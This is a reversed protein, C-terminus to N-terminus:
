LGLRKLLGRALKASVTKQTSLARSKAYWDVQGCGCSTVRGERLYSNRVKKVKGCTCRCLSMTMRGPITVQELVTLRGYVEGKKLLKRKRAGDQRPTMTDGVGGICVDAACRARGMGGIESVDDM